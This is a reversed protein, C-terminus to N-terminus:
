GVKKNRQVKASHKNTPVITNGSINYVVNDRGLYNRFTGKEKKARDNKVKKSKKKKLFSVYKNYVRNLFIAIIKHFSNKYFLLGVIIVALKYVRFNGLHFFYNFFVFAFAVCVWWTFTLLHKVCKHKFVLMFFYFFEYLFGAIGGFAFCFLMVRPEDVSIFM